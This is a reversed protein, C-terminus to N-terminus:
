PLLIRWKMKKQVVQAFADPDIDYEKAITHLKHLKKPNRICHIEKSFVKGASRFLWWRFTIKPFMYLLGIIYQWTQLPFSVSVGSYDKGRTYTYAVDSLESWRGIIGKAENYEQLEDAIDAEHWAQDFMDMGLYRHWAKLIM